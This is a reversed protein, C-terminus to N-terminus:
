KVVVGIYFIQYFRALSTVDKLIYVFGALQVLLAPACARIGM